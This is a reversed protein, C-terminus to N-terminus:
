KIYDQFTDACTGSLYQEKNQWTVHGPLISNKTWWKKSLKEYVIQSKGKKDRITVCSYMIMIMTFKGIKYYYVIQM